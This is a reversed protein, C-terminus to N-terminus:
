RAQEEVLADLQKDLLEKNQQVLEREREEDLRRRLRASYERIAARVLASRSQFQSSSQLEDMMDLTEEDVSIAITKM